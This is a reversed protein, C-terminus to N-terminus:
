SVQWAATQQQAATAAAAAQDTCGQLSRVQHGTVVGRGEGELVLLLVQAQCQCEPSGQLVCCCYFPPPPDAPACLSSAQTNAQVVGTKCYGTAQQYSTIQQLVCWTMKVAVPLM